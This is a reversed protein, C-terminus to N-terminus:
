PLKHPEDADNISCPSPLPSRVTSKAERLGFLTILAVAPPASTPSAAQSWSTISRSITNQLHLLFILQFLKSFWRLVLRTSVFSQIQVLSQGMGQVHDEAVARERTVQQCCM